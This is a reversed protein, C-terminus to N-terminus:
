PWINQTPIKQMKLWLNLFNRRQVYRSTQSCNIQPFCVVPERRKGFFLKKTNKPFILSFFSVEPERQSYWFAFLKWKPRINTSFLFSTRGPGPCSGFGSQGHVTKKLHKLYKQLIKRNPLFLLRKFNETIKKRPSVQSQTGIPKVALIYQLINNPRKYNNEM